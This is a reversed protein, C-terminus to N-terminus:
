TDPSRTFRSFHQRRPGGHFRGFGIEYSDVAANPGLFRDFALRPITKIGGPVFHGPYGFVAAALMETSYVAEGYGYYDAFSGEGARVYQPRFNNEWDMGELNFLYEPDSFSAPEVHRLSFDTAYWGYQSPDAWSTKLADFSMTEVGCNIGVRTGSIINYFAAPDQWVFCLVGDQYLRITDNGDWEARLVSDGDLFYTFPHPNSILTLDGHSDGGYHAVASITGYPNSINIQYSRMPDPFEGAYGLGTNGLCLAFSYANSGSATYHDYCHVEIFQNRAGTDKWLLGFPYETRPNIPKLQGSRVAWDSGFAQYRPGPDNSDPRGFNDTDDVILPDDATFRLRLSANIGYWYVSPVTVALSIEQWADTLAVTQSAITTDSGPYRVDVGYYAEFVAHSARSGARKRVWVKAVITAPSPPADAFYLDHGWGWEDTPRAGTGDYLQVWSSEHVPNDPDLVLEISHGSARGVPARAITDHSDWVDIWSYDEPRFLGDRGNPRPRHVVWFSSTDSVMSGDPINEPGLTQSVAGGEGLGLSSIDYRYIEAFIQRYGYGIHRTTSSSPSLFYNYADVHANYRFFYVYTGDCGLLTENLGLGTYDRLVRLHTGASPHWMGIGASYNTTVVWGNELEYVPQYFDDTLDGITTAETVLDYSGRHWEGSYGSGPMWAGFYLKTGDRSVIANTTDYATPALVAMTRVVTKSVTDWEILETVRGSSPDPYHSAFIFLSNPYLPSNVAWEIQRQKTYWYPPDPEDFVTGLNVPPTNAGAVEVVVDQSGWYPQRWGSEVITTWSEAQEMVAYHEGSPLQGVGAYISDTVDTGNYYRTDGDLPTTFAYFFPGVDDSYGVIGWRSFVSFGEVDFNVMMGFGDTPATLVPVDELTYDYGRAQRTMHDDGPEWKWFRPRYDEVNNKATRFSLLDWEHGGYAPDEFGDLVVRLYLPTGKNVAIMSEPSSMNAWPRDGGIRPNKGKQPLNEEVFHWDYKMYYNTTYMMDDNVVVLRGDPRKIAAWTEWDVQATFAGDGYYYNYPSMEAWQTHRTGYYLFQETDPVNIKLWFVWSEPDTDAYLKERYAKPYGIAQGFRVPLAAVPRFEAYRWGNGPTGDSAFGMATADLNHEMTFIFTGLYQSDITLKNGVAKLRLDYGPYVGRVTGIATDVGAADRWYVTGENVNYGPSISLWYGSGDPKARMMPGIGPGLGTYLSDSGHAIVYLSQSADGIDITLSSKVGSNQIAPVSDSYAVSHWSGPGTSSSWHFGGAWRSQGDWETGPVETEFADALAEYGAAIIPSPAGGAGAMTYTANRFDIEIYLDGADFDYRTMTLPRVRNNPNVGMAFLGGLRSDYADYTYGDHAAPWPGSSIETAGNFVTWGDKSVQVRVIDGVVFPTSHATVVSYDVPSSSTPTNFVGVETPTIVTFASPRKYPDGDYGLDTRMICGFDDTDIAGFTFTFEIPGNQADPWQTIESYLQGYWPAEGPVISLGYYNINGERTFWVEGDANAEWAAPTYGAWYYSPRFYRDIVDVQYTGSRPDGYGGTEHVGVLFPSRTTWDYNVVDYSTALEASPFKKGDVFEFWIVLTAKGDVLKAAPIALENPIAFHEAYFEYSDMQRSSIWITDSTIDPKTFSYESHLELGALYAETPRAILNYNAPVTPDPGVDANPAYAIKMKIADLQAIQAADQYARDCDLYFSSVADSIDITIDGAASTFGVMNPEPAAFDPTLATSDVHIIGLYTWYERNPLYTPTHTGYAYDDYGVYVASYANSTNNNVYVPTDLPDGDTLDDISPVPDGKPIYYYDFNWAANFNRVAPSPSFSGEGMTEDTITAPDVPTGPPAKLRYITDANREVTISPNAAAFAHAAVEPPLLYSSV